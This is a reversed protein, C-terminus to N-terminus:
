GMKIGLSQKKKIIRKREKSDVITKNFGEAKKDTDNEIMSALRCFLNAASEIVSPQYQNNQYEKVKEYWERAYENGHEEALEIYKLCEEENGEKFYIRALAFEANSNEDKSAILYYEKAKEFDIETGWGKEYLQGLRYCNFGNQLKKDSSYLSIMKVFWVDSEKTNKLSSHNKSGKITVTFIFTTIETMAYLVFTMNMDMRKLSYETHPAKKPILKPM